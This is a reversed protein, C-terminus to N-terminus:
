LEYNMIIKWIIMYTYSLFRTYIYIYLSVFFVFDPDQTNHIISYKITNKFYTYKTNESGTYFCTRKTGTWARACVLSGQHARTNVRESRRCMPLVHYPQEAPQQQRALPPRRVGVLRARVLINPYRPWPLGGVRARDLM